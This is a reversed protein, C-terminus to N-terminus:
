RFVGRRAALGQAILKEVEAKVRQSAAHVVEPEDADEPAHGEHLLLPAGYLMHYRAPLPLPTLPVPIHPSGFLHGLAALAGAEADSDM